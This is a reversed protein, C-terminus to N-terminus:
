SVPGAGPLPRGDLYHPLFQVAVIRRAGSPTTLEHLFVLAGVTELTGQGLASRLVDLSRPERLVAPAPSERSLSVHSGADILAHATAPDSEFVVLNAPEVYSAARRQYLVFQARDRAQRGLTWSGLACAVLLGALVAHRPRLRRTPRQGLGYALPRVTIAPLEIGVGAGSDGAPPFEPTQRSFTSAPSPM